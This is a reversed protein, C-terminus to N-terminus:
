EIVEQTTATYSRAPVTVGNLQVDVYGYNVYVQTGNEYTTITVNGHREHGVMEQDFIGSLTESYQKVQATMDDLMLSADAGYYESYFSDQLEYVSGAFLTYQLGAGMEASRLLLEEADDALNLSAGTYTVRSHLAATYFPVYEDIISYQAGDFDMDTIINSWVAAYDNGQRIMVSQGGARLSALKEVQLDLVEERTTHDKADYDSSLIYGIDRFSVNANYEAATSALTDVNSMALAPKILYYSSRDDEDEPGYWITSYVPINAQERTTFRAADRYGLFGDLLDSDYAFSMMGDLYLPINANAATQTLEKLDSASGLESILKVKKLLKQNMGGNMWGSYRITLNPLGRQALQRLLETAQEYTTMAIPVSTPIGAVQQVKDIAGIFEVNVAADADVTQAAFDPYLTTLYDRYSAAMDMYGTDTLFRYRQRITGTPHETEFMYVSTNTRESVDYADGHVITYTANVTNYSTLHGSIDANIGAWAAGDELICIFAGDGSSIGFVPFNIRTENTIQTRISAWDWGYLNAYYANQKLKGNNFNILAGSGDPVLMFGEDETGGAGFAPLLTLGTLPYDVDYALDDLPVEVVLDSGDLRFVISVDFVAKPTTNEKAVIRSNDYELDEATYGTEAFYTEAYAKQYDKTSDRLVWVNQEALDPYTALLEEKNDTKRLKNINYERYYEKMEKQQKKTMQDMYVQMRDATIATPIAYSRQLRGVSYNLRVSGDEQMVVEYVDNTVSHENSTFLTTMGTSTSYTLTMTSNLKNKEVPLAIPDSDAALPSSYWVHGTRKDTLTFHTTEPDLEFRLIDNEMVMETEPATYGYLPVNHGETEDSTDFLPIIVYNTLLALALLLIVGLVIRVTIRRKM